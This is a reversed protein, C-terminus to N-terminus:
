QRIVVRLGRPWSEALGGRTSELETSLFRLLTDTSPHFRLAPAVLYVLPPAAQLEIGPSYGYRVFDRQELHRRIRLWYGAAQLPLHIHESAKLELIALRGSRTVTLLDLIGPEGGAHAFVQTYVFRADLAADVRTVDEHVLARDLASRSRDLLAQSERHPVLWTDQNGAHRLAIKELTERVPDREYLEISLDPALAPARHAVHRPEGKPPIRRLANISGRRNSNRVRDLWLLAFTLGNEM